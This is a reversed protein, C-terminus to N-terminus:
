KASPHNKFLQLTYREWHYEFTDVSKEFDSTLKKIIFLLLFIL